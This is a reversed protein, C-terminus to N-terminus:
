HEIRHLPTSSDPPLDHNFLRNFHKFVSPQQVNPHQLPQLVPPYNDLQNESVIPFIAFILQNYLKKVM